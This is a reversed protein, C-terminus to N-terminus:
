THLIGVMGLVAGLLRPRDAVSQLAAAAQAFLLDQLLEPRLAFLPRLQEPVTFTVLFYPM